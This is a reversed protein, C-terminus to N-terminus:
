IMKHDCSIKIPGNITALQYNPKCDAYKGVSKLPVMSRQLDSQLENNKHLM